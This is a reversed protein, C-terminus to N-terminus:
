RQANGLSARVDDGDATVVAAGTRRRESGNFIRSQGPFNTARSARFEPEAPRRERRERRTSPAQLKRAVNQNRGDQASVFKAKPDPRQEGDTAHHRPLAMEIRTGDADSRLVSVSRIRKL